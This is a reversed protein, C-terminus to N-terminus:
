IPFTIEFYTLIWLLNLAVNCMCSLMLEPPLPGSDMNNECSFAKPSHQDRSGRAYETGAPTVRVTM